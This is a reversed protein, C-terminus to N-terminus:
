IPQGEKVEDVDWVEVTIPDYGYMLLDASLSRAYAYAVETANDVDPANVVLCVPGKLHLEIRFKAV